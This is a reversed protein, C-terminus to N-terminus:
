GAAPGKQTIGAAIADLVATYATPVAVDMTLRGDSVTVTFTFFSCCRTEAAALGAARAAVDQGPRLELRLRTPEARTVTRVAEGFFGGFEAVRVPQEAIPMTCAGEVGWGTDARSDGQKENRM